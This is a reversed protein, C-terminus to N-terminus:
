RRMVRAVSRPNRLLLIVAHTAPDAFHQANIEGSVGGQDFVQILLPGNVIEAGPPKSDSIEELFYVGGDIGEIRVVPEIECSARQSAGISRTSRSVLRHGFRRQRTQYCGAIGSSM